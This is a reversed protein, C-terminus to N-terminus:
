EQDEIMVIDGTKVDALTVKEWQMENGGNTGKFNASGPLALRTVPTANVKKDDKYRKWEGVFEKYVGMLMIIITPTLVVIPSNVRISKFMNLIGTVIYFINVLKKFQLAFAVPFFTLWTYQTSKRKNTPCEAQEKLIKDRYLLPTVGFTYLEAAKESEKMGSMVSKGKSTQKSDKLSVDPAIEESGPQGAHNEVLKGDTANNISM